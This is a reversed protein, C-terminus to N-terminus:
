TKKKIIIRSVTQLYIPSKSNSFISSPGDLEARLDDTLTFNKQNMGNAEFCGPGENHKATILTKKKEILALIPLFFLCIKTLDALKFFSTSCQDKHFKM